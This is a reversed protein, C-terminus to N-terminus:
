SIRKFSSNLQRKSEAQFLALSLVATVEYPQRMTLSINIGNLLLNMGNRFPIIDNM